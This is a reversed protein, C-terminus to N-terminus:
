AEVADALAASRLARGILVFVLLVGVLLVWFTWVGVWGPRFLVARSFVTPLDSLLSPPHRLLFIMSAGASTAKGAVVLRAGSIENADGFFGAQSPGRSYVCVDVMRGAPVVRPFGVFSNIDTTVAFNASTLTAGSPTRISMTLSARPSQVLGIFAHIGSFATRVEVPGECMTQGRSIPTLLQTIQQDLSFADPRRDTAAALLLGALGVLSILGFVLVSRRLSM